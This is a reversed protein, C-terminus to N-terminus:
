FKSCAAEIEKPKLIGAMVEKFLAQKINRPLLEDPGVLKENARKQEWDAFLRKINSMEISVITVSEGTRNERTGAIQREKHQRAHPNTTFQILKREFLIPQAKNEDNEPLEEVKVGEVEQPITQHYIVFDIKKNVDDLPSVSEVKLHLDPFDFGVRTLFVRAMKEALVGPQQFYEPKSRAEASYRERHMARFTLTEPARAVSTDGM